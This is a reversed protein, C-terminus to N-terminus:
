LCKWQAESGWTRLDAPKGALTLQKKAGQGRLEDSAFAGLCLMDSVVFVSLRDDAMWALADVKNGIVYGPAFTPEFAILEVNLERLVARTAADLEGWDAHQPCAAVLRVAEGLEQRLSSALLLAKLELKGSQIVFVVQLSGLGLNSTTM